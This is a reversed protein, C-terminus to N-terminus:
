FDRRALNAAAGYLLAASAAASSLLGLWPLGGGLFYTDASMVRFLGFGGLDNSLQEVIRLTFAAALAILLPRWVDHFATSLYLALTFFTAGAVFLCASHALADIVSYREGVAPALLAILLSPVVALVFLQVLGVLARATVLQSRTIPLSLTYLAAGESGAALLSGSGLLAAFITWTQPLNQNFWQSFVYGRFTRMLEASARIQRGIEGGGDITPVLPLLRLMRPYLMVLGCASFLLIALGILFRWRTDLWSKYWLM